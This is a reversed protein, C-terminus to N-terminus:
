DAGPASFSSKRESRRAVLPAARQFGAIKRSFDLLAKIKNTCPEVCIRANRCPAEAGCPSCEHASILYLKQKTPAHNWASVRTEATRKQAANSRRHAKEKWKWNRQLVQTFNKKGKKEMQLSKISKKWQSIM